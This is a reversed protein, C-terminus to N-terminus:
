LFQPHDALTWIFYHCSHGGLCTESLSMGGESAGYAQQTGLYRRISGMDQYTVVYGLRLNELPIIVAIRHATHNINSSM